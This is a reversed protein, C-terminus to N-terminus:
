YFLYVWYFSLNDIDEHRTRCFQIQHASFDIGVAAEPEYYKALFALGGGRGCGLDLIKKDSLVDQNIVGIQLSTM